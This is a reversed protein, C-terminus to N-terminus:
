KNGLFYIQQTQGENSIKLMLLLSKGDISFHPYDGMEQYDKEYTVGEFDQAEFDISLRKEFTFPDEDEFVSIILAEEGTDGDHLSLHTDDIRKVIITTEESRRNEPDAPYTEYVAGKYTGVLKSTLDQGFAISSFCIFILFCTIKKLYLM